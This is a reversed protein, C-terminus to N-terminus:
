SPSLFHFTSAYGFKIAPGVQRSPSIEPDIEKMTKDIAIHTVLSLLGNWHLANVFSPQLCGDLAQIVILV